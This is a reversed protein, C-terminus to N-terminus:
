KYLAPRFSPKDFTEIVSFMSDVVERSHERYSLSPHPELQEAIKNRAYIWEDFAVKIENWMPHYYYPEFYNHFHSFLEDFNTKGRISDNKQPSVAYEKNGSIIAHELEVCERRYDLWSMINNNKEEPVALYFEASYLYDLYYVMAEMLNHWAVYEKDIWENDPIASMLADYALSTRISSILRLYNTYANIDSQSGSDTITESLKETDSLARTINGKYYSDKRILERIAKAYNMDNVPSGEVSGLTAIQVLFKYAHPNEQRMKKWYRDDIDLDVNESMELFEAVPIEGDAFHPKVHADPFYVGRYEGPLYLTAFYRGDPNILKFSRDDIKEM